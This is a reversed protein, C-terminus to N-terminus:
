NYVFFHIVKLLLKLKEGEKKLSDFLKPGSKMTIDKERKCTMLQTKLNECSACKQELERSLLSTSAQTFVFDVCDNKSLDVTNLERLSEFVKPSISQIRNSALSITKLKPNSKFVSEDISSLHNNELDLSILRPLKSFTNPDLYRLENGELSLVKLTSIELETFFKLKNRRLNLNELSPLDNFTEAVISTLENNSLDLFKLQPMNQFDEPSLTKISSGEFSLETMSPFGKGIDKPLKKMKKDSITVRKVRQNEPKEEFRSSELPQSKVNCTFEYSNSFPSLTDSFECSIQTPKLHSFIEVREFPDKFSVYLHNTFKIFHYNNETLSTLM